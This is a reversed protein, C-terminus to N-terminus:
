WGANSQYTHIIFTVAKKHKMCDTLNYFIAYIAPNVVNNFTKAKWRNNYANKIKWVQTQM